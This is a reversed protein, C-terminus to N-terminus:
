GLQCMDVYCVEPSTCRCGFNEFWGCSDCDFPNPCFTNPCPGAVAAASGPAPVALLSLCAVFVLAKIRAFGTM